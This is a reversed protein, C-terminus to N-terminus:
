SHPLTAQKNGLKNQLIDAVNTNKM